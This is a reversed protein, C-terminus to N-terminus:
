PWRHLRCIACRNDGTGARGMCCRMRTVSWITPWSAFLVRPAGVNSGKVSGDFYLVYTRKEIFLRGRGFVLLGIVILAVAGVIFAGILRPNARRGM